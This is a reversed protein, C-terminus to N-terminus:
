ALPGPSFGECLNRANKRPHTCPHQFREQRKFVLSRETARQVLKLCSPVGPNSGPVQQDATLRELWQAIYGNALMGKAKKISPEQGQFSAAPQSAPQRESQRGQGKTLQLSTQGTPRKIDQVLEGAIFADAPFRVRTVDIAVIYEVVLGSISSSANDPVELMPPGSAADNCCATTFQQSFGRRFRCAAFASDGFREAM